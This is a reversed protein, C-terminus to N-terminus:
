SLQSANRAERTPRLPEPEKRGLRRLAEPIRTIRFAIPQDETALTGTCGLGYMSENAGGLGHLDRM